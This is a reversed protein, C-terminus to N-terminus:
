VGGMAEKGYMKFFVDELSLDRTSFSRVHQKSMAKIFNDVPGAIRCHIVNGNIVVERVGRVGNLMARNATVDLVVDFEHISKEYLKQLTLSELIRGKNIFCVMDCMQEVEALIHSSIFTTRGSHQHEGVMAVFVQLIIPDLGSTPEDLILLEPQHQFAAILGIKQKNGRSLKGIKQNLDARLRKSLKNINRPNLQRQLNGMYALYQRGTLNGYYELDGTLYGVKSHIQASQEQSDLGLVNAIGRTPAIFNMLTRITTTKGAGNPGLFGYVSGVPVVLEVGRIAWHKGYQKSLGLTEIASVM